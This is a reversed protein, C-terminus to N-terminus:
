TRTTGTASDAGADAAYYSTEAEVVSLCMSDEVPTRAHPLGGSQAVRHQHTDDLLHVAAFRSGAIFRALRAVKDLDLSSASDLAGYRRLATTRADAKVQDLM